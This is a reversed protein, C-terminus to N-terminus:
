WMVEERKGLEEFCESREVKGSERRPVRTTKWKSLWSKESSSVSASIMRMSMLSMILSVSAPSFRAPHILTARSPSRLDHTLNEGRNYVENRACQSVPSWAVRYTICVPNTAIGLEKGTDSLTVIDQCGVNICAADGACADVGEEYGGGLV